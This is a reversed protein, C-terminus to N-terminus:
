LAPCILKVAIAELEIAVRKQIISVVERCGPRVKMLIYKSAGQAARDSLAMSEKKSGILAQSAAGSLCLQCLYQGPSLSTTIEGGVSTKRAIRNREGGAQL